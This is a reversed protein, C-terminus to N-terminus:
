ARPRRRLSHWGLPGLREVARNADRTALYNPTEWDLQLRGDVPSQLVPGLLGKRILFVQYGYSKLADTVPSPYSHYEEFIIDRVRGSSLLASAGRFVELEHGEVDVKLVGITASGLVLDLTTAVVHFQSTPRGENRSLPALTATGRNADFGASALLRVEGPHESLALESREVHEWSLAERWRTINESLEVSLGPHPEFCLVRGAAGVAVGMASTMVGINAGVDVATEGRAALRLIAESVVVDYVGTRWIARGIAEDPRILIPTGWPLVVRELEQAGRRERVLRHVAQRPHFLYEPKRM